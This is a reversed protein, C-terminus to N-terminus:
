FGGVLALGNPQPIVQVNPRYKPAPLLTAALVGGTAAGAAAGWFLFAESSAGGSRAAADGIFGGLLLGGAATVDVWVVDGRLLPCSDWLALGALFGVDAAVLTLHGNITRTAGQSALATVVASWLAASNALAIRGTEPHWVQGAVAGAATGLLQGAVLTSPSEGFNGATALALGNMFGLASGSNILAAQHPRLASGVTAGAMGGLASGALWSIAKDSCHALGCLELGLLGGHLAQFTGLEVAGAGKWDSEGLAESSPSAPSATRPLPAADVPASTWALTAIAWVLLLKAGSALASGQRGGSACSRRPRLRRPLNAWNPQDQGRLM